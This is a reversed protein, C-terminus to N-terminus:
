GGKRWLDNRIDTLTENIRFAVILLECFFAFALRERSPDADASGDGERSLARPAM